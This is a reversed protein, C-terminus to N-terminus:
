WCGPVFKSIVLLLRGWVFTFLMIFLLKSFRFTKIYLWKLRINNNTVSSFMTYIFVSPEFNWLYKLFIACILIVRYINYAHSTYPNLLIYFQMHLKYKWIILFFMKSQHVGDKFMILNVLKLTYYLGWNRWTQVKCWCYWLM